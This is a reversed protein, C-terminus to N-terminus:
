IKNQSMASIGVKWFEDVEYRNQLKERGKRTSFTSNGGSYPGKGRLDAGM